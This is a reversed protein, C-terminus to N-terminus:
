LHRISPCLATSFSSDVRMEQIKTPFRLFLQLSKYFLAVTFRLGNYLAFGSIVLKRILRFILTQYSKKLTTEPINRWAQELVNM